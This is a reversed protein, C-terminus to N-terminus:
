SLGRTTPRASIIVVNHHVIFTAPKIIFCSVKGALILASALLQASERVSEVFLPSVSSGAGDVWGGVV